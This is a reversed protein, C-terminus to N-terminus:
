LLQINFIKDNMDLTVATHNLKFIQIITGLFKLVFHM